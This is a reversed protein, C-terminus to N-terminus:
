GGHGRRDTGDSAGDPSHGEPRLLVQGAAKSGLIILFGGLLGIGASYGPFNKAGTVIDLVIGASLLILTVAIARRNM